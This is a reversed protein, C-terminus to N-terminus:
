IIDDYSVPYKKLFSSVVIYSIAKSTMKIWNLFDTPFFPFKKGQVKKQLISYPIGLVELVSKSDWKYICSFREMFIVLSINEIRLRM